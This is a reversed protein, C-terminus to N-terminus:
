LKLARDFDIHQNKNEDGARGVNRYLRKEYVRQLPLRPSPHTMVNRATHM